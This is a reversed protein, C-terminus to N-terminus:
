KQKRKEGDERVVQERGTSLLCQSGPLTASDQDALFLGEQEAVRQRLVWFRHGSM